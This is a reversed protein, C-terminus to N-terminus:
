GSGAVEGQKKCHGKGQEMHSKGEGAGGNEYTALQAPAYNGRKRKGQPNWELPRKAVHGGPRRLM